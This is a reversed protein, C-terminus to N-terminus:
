HLRGSGRGGTQHNSLAFGGGQLLDCLFYSMCFDFYEFFAIKQMLNPSMKLEQAISCFIGANRITQAPWKCDFRLQEAGPVRIAAGDNGCAKPPPGACRFGTRTNQTAGNM